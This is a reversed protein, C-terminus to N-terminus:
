KLLEHIKQDVATIINKFLEGAWDLLSSISNVIRKISIYYSKKYTTIYWIFLTIFSVYLLAVFAKTPSQLSSIFSLFLLFGLIGLASRLYDINRQLLANSRKKVGNENILDYITQQLKSKILKKDLDSSRKINEIQSKQSKITELHDKIIKDSIIQELEKQAIIHKQNSIESELERAILIKEDAIRLDTTIDNKRNELSEIEIHYSAILNEYNRVEERRENKVEFIRKRIESVAQSFAYETKNNDTKIIPQGDRPVVQLDSFPLDEWLCPLMIVPIVLTNREKHLGLSIPMEVNNIYDSALFNSSVIFFILDAKLLESNIKKEWEKGAEIKEDHWIRIHRERQLFSLHRELKKKFQIDERAYVIVVNLTKIPVEM